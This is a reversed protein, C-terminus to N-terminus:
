PMAPHAAAALPCAPPAASSRSRGRRWRRGGRKNRHPPCPRAAKRPFSSYSSSLPLLLPHPLHPLAAPKRPHRQTGAPGRLARLEPVELQGRAGFFPCFSGLTVRWSHGPHQESGAPSPQYCGKEERGTNRTNRYLLVSGQSHGFSGRGAGDQRAKGDWNVLVPCPGPAADGAGRCPRQPFRGRRDSALIALLARRFFFDNM